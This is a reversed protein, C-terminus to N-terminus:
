QDLLKERHPLNDRNWRKLVDDRRVDFLNRLNLGEVHGDCFTM